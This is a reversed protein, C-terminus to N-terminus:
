STKLRGASVRARCLVSERAVIPQTQALKTSLLGPQVSRRMKRLGSHLPITLRYETLRRGVTLRMLYIIYLDGKDPVGDSWDDSRANKALASVLNSTKGDKVASSYHLKSRV